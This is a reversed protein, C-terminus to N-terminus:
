PRPLLGSNFYLDLALGAFVALGLWNNNLFARFCRSRDRGRILWFQYLALAAAVSLGAFYFSGLKQWRGLVTLLGLFLAHALMVGAVDFRGLALASSNLGLKADDDRDVMAYETDYAIIWFFTAGMLLWGSYPIYGLQAAYAMPIAFSFAIGLGAQPFFFFRKLLPYVVMIGLAAFSLLVTFRNLQAVLLFAGLLLAAALLLAEGPGILGTALPRDRTREVHPDYRRDAVDNIICGASRTLIVGLVFIVLVEFEPMTRRALWLSWLAPWMLLLAGIPKDLRTLREYADLREKFTM